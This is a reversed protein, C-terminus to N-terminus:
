EELDNMNKIYAFESIKTWERVKKLYARQSEIIEKTIGGKAEYEAILEDNAKKMAKLVPVPFEKVKVNPYNARIDALANSNDEYVENYFRSASVQMAAKVIAQLDKPLKDFAKRNILFQTDSAPEHWGTYYFPAIKNFGMRIDMGPGVWELADITGRDLATYLEGAALNTVIVGLKAFIEGSFGPIRMKLGKLDDVTKIEHRFWGGMQVGTNGGPYSYVGHKEYVRQMLDLGGGYYFWAYLEDVTFMFPMSTFFPTNLDKGKWYYSASHAMEYNGAKVMDLVGLPAKHKEAGHVRIKLRGNSMEEVMKKFELAPTSLPKLTTPWSLAIKWRYVKEKALAQTGFALAVFFSVGLMFLKRRM